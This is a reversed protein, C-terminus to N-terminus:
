FGDLQGENRRIMLYFGLLLLLVSFLMYLLVNRNGKKVSTESEGKYKDIISKYRKGNILLLYGVIMLSLMILGGAIGGGELLLTVGFIGYAMFLISYFNLGILFSLLMVATYRAIMGNGLSVQSRYARYYLYELKHKM